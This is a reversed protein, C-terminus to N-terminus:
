KSPQLQELATSLMTCHYDQVSSKVNSQLAAKKRKSSAKKRKSKKSEESTTTDNDKMEAEQNSSQNKIYGIPVWAEPRARTEKNFCVLTMMVPELNLKGHVDIPTSDIFLIVALLQDNTHMRENNRKYHQHQKQHLSGTNVDAVFTSEPDLDLTSEPDLDLTM